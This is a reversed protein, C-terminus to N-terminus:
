TELLLKEEHLWFNKTEATQLNATSLDGMTM